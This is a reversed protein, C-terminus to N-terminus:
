SAKGGCRAPRGSLRQATARRRHLHGAGPVVATAPRESDGPGGSGAVRGPGPQGEAFAARASKVEAPRLLSGVHDARYVQPMTIVGQRQSHAFSTWWLNPFNGGDGIARPYNNLGMGLCPLATQTDERGSFTDLCRPQVDPDKSQRGSRVLPDLNEPYSLSGAGPNRGGKQLPALEGGSHHHPRAPPRGARRSM